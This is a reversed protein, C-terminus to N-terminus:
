PTIVNILWQGDGEIELFYRGPTLSTSTEGSYNGVENALLDVREGQDDLLWVGFYREGNHSITFRVLGGESLEFDVVSDGQGVLRRDAPAPRTAPISARTPTVAVTPLRTPLVVEAPRTATPTFTPLSFATPTPSPIFTATPPIAVRAPMGPLLPAWAPGLLICGVCMIGLLLIGTTVFVWKPTDM